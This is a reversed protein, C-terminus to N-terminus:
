RGVAVRYWVLYYDNFRVAGRELRVVSCDRDTDSGCDVKIRVMIAGGSGCLVAIDKEAVIAALAGVFYFLFYVVTDVM